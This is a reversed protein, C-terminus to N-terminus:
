LSDMVRFWYFDGGTSVAQFRSALLGNHNGFDGPHASLPYASLTEEKRVSPRYTRFRLPMKKLGAEGASNIPMSGSHRRM